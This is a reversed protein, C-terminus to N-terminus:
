AAAHTPRIGLQALRREGWDGLPLLAELLSRGADTLSYEVRPPVEDYEARRVIGNGQLERLQQALMKESIGPVARRLEGFRHTREKLAWLILAKWKGGVIDM